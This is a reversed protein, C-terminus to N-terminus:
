LIFYYLRTCCIDYIYQIYVKQLFSKKQKLLCNTYYISCDYTIDFAFIMEFTDFVFITRVTCLPISSCFSHKFSLLVYTDFLICIVCVIVSRMCFIPQVFTKASMRLVMSTICFSNSIRVYLISQIFCSILRYSLGRCRQNIFIWKMSSYSPCVLPLRPASKFIM